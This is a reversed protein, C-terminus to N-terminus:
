SPAVILRAILGQRGAEAAAHSEVEFVGELDAEFRFRAPRGPRPHKTLDYGHLHIEDPADSYVVFRVTDGTKAAIEEVGGGVEGGRLRVEVPPPPLASRTTATRERGDPEAERDQPLTERADTAPDDAQESGEDPQALVFVVVAILAALAAFGVRGRRTM